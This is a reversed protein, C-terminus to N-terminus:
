AGKWNKIKLAAAAADLEAEHKSSGRGQAILDDKIFVGVIFSKKHDPGSEKIVKYTPTAMEIEQAKEQLFSKPDKDLKKEIIEELKKEILHKKIFKRCTKYGQDLYLAGVFAEFADALIYKKSRGKEKEEGQSLLLYDNFNLEKAVEYLNNTNVLSARWSTMKGEPADPYKNFVYETTVLELVADGLFELRENHSINFNPNENLYSRHCFAQTLLDKDKFAISLDKELKKFDKM